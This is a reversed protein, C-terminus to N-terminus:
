VVLGSMVSNLVGQNGGGGTGNTDAAALLYRQSFTDVFKPDRFRTVDLRSDIAKQQAELSQFAIQLPLGLATTVVRRLIPDGLIQLSSRIDGAMERFTLADSLGPTAANL